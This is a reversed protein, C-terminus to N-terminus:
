IGTTPTTPAPGVIKISQDVLERVGMAVLGYLAASAEPPFGPLLFAEPKIVTPLWGLFMAVLAFAWKPVKDLAIPTWRDIVEKIGRTAVPIMLPLAMKLGFGFVFSDWTSM